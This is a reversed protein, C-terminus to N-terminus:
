KFMSAASFYRWDYNDAEHSAQPEIKKNLVDPKLIKESVLARKAEQIAEQVQKNQMWVKQPPEFGVKEKRWSISEPLKNRM